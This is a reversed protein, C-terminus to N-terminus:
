HKMTELTVAPFFCLTCKNLVCIRNSNYHLTYKYSFSLIFNKKEVSELEVAPLLCDM